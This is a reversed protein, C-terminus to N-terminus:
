ARRHYTLDYEVSWSKGGDTSGQSFQRMTDKDLSFFQLHRKLRTGDPQPIEDTTFDMVGDKLGGAFHITDGQNDVWFQEWRKLSPNYINYSKGAYGSTGLSTWNEWIVCDGVTREIHSVGASTADKTTVVNWDGVWFDFQRYEAKYACPTQNRKAQEVLGAFRTDAALPKLDPDAAMQDPQGYGQKV